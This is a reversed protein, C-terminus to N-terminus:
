PRRWALMNLGSTVAVTDFACLAKALRQWDVQIDAPSTSAFCARDLSDLLAGVAPDGHCPLSALHQHAGAWRLDAWALM